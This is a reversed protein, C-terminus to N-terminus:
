PGKLSFLPTYRKQYRKLILCKQHDRCIKRTEKEIGEDHRLIGKFYYYISLIEHVWTRDEETESLNKDIMIESTDIRVLGGIKRDKYPRFEPNDFDIYRVEFSSLIQNLIRDFESAEM